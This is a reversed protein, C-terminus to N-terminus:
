FGEETDEYNKKVRQWNQLTNKAINAGKNVVKKIENFGKADSKNLLDIIIIEALTNVTLEDVDFYGKLNENDSLGKEKRLQEANKGFINEYIINTIESQNGSIGRKSLEESLTNKSHKSYERLWEPFPKTEDALKISVVLEKGYELQIKKNM